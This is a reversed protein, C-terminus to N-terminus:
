RNGCDCHKKERCSKKECCHEEKCAPEIAGYTGSILNNNYPSSTYFLVNKFAVISTITDIIITQGSTDKLIELLKGEMNKRLQITGSGSNAVLFSHDTKAFNSPVNSTGYPVNTGDYEDVITKVFCGDHKFVLIMGYGPGNVPEDNSNLAYTVYIYKEDSEIGYPYYNVNASNIFRYSSTVDNFQNDFVCVKKNHFDTVYLHDSAICASTFVENNTGLYKQVFTNVTASPSWGLIQSDRTATILFSPATGYNTALRFGETHNQVLGMPESNTLAVAPPVVLFPYLDMEDGKLSYHVVGNSGRSSIWVESKGTTLGYQQIVFQHPLSLSPDAESTKLTKTRYKM